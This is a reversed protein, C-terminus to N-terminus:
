EIVIRRPIITQDVQLSFIVTTMVPQILEPDGQLSQRYMYGIETASLARNYQRIDDLAGPFFDVPTAHRDACLNWPRDTFAGFGEDAIGTSAFLAGNAYLAMGANTQSGDYVVCLHTWTNLPLAADTLHNESQGSANTLSFLVKGSGDGALQLWIGDYPAAEPATGMIVKSAPTSTPNVWLCVSFPNNYTIGANVQTLVWDDTGDCNIQADGGPRM